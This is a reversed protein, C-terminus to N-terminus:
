EHYPRWQPCRRRALELTRFTYWRKSERDWRAELKAKTLLYYTTLWDRAVRSARWVCM